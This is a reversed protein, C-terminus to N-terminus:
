QQAVLVRPIANPAAEAQAIIVTAARENVLKLDAVRSGEFVIVLTRCGLRNAEKSNAEFNHYVWIDRGPKQNPEGLVSKVERPTAGVKFTFPRCNSGVQKVAVLVSSDPGPAATAPVVAFSALAALLIALSSLRTKM